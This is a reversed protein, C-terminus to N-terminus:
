FHPRAVSLVMMFMSVIDTSMLKEWELLLQRIIIITDMIIM